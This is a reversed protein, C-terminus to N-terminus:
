NELYDLAINMKLVNVKEPGVPNKEIHSFVINKVMETDLGRAAAIRNVQSLAANLSIHPDLGSGSATVMDVPVISKPNNTKFEVVYQQVMKLYDPDNPGKNSGGSGTTNYNVASPRSRFYINRDFKQGINEFYTYGNKDTVRKGKGNNPAVQAIGFLLLVYLVCLIFITGTLRLSQLIHNKM